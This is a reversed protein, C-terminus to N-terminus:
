ARVPEGSFPDRRSALLVGALPLTVAAAPGALVWVIAAPAELGFGRGIFYVAWWVVVALAPLGGLVAAIRPRRSATFAAILPPVGLLIMVPWAGVLLFAVLVLVSTLAASGRFATLQRTTATPAPM